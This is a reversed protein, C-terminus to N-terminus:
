SSNRQTNRTKMEIPVKIFAASSANSKIKSNNGSLCAWAQFYYMTVIIKNCKMFEYQM